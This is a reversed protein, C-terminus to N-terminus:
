PTEMYPLLACRFAEITPFRQAPEKALAKLVAAELAGPFSLDPRAMGMPRPPTSIHADLLELIRRRQSTDGEDGLGFPICGTLCRYLLVGMAYQDSRGDLVEGSCQEPSMYLPTGVLERTLHKHWTQESRAIGFDILKVFQHSEGEEALFINEPKLDRHVVGHEHVVALAQCAQDIVHFTLAWGLPVGEILFEDLSAGRLLEMVYYHGLDPTYGADDLLAVVHPTHESLLRTVRVEREFRLRETLEDIVGAKVVKVVCDSPVEETIDVARYIWAFAGETLQELIRYRGAVLRLPLECRACRLPYSKAESQVQQCQPCYRPELRRGEILM